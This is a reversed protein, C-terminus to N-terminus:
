PTAPMRHPPLLADVLENGLINHPDLELSCVRVRLACFVCLTAHAFCTVRVCV